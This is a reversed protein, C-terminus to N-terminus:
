LSTDNLGAIARALAVLEIARAWAQENTYEFGCERRIIERLEDVARQTLGYAGRFEADVSGPIEESPPPLSDSPLSGFGESRENPSHKM